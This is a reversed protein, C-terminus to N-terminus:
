SLDGWVFPLFLMGLVLACRALLRRTVREFRQLRARELAVGVANDIAIWLLTAAGILAFQATFNLNLELRRASGFTDHLLGCALLTAFVVFGRKLWTACRLRIRAVLPVFVYRKLWTGLYVNWRRWFDLPDAAVLPNMFCEPSHHGAAHLLGTRVTILGVQAGYAVLCRVVAASLAPWVPWRAGASMALTYALLEALLASFVICALGVACRRLAVLSSTPGPRSRDPYALVPDVVLFFLAGRWGATGAAHAREGSLEV